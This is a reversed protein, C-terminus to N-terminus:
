EMGPLKLEIGEVQPPAPLGKETNEIFQHIIDRILTSVEVDPYYRRLKDVDGAYFNLTHKQLEADAKAM